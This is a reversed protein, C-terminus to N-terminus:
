FSVLYLNEIEIYIEVQKESELVAYEHFKNGVHFTRLLWSLLGTFVIPGFSVLGQKQFKLRTLNEILLYLFPLVAWFIAFKLQANFQGAIKSYMIQVSAKGIQFLFIELFFPWVLFGILILALSFGFYKLTRKM